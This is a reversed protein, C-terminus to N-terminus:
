TLASQLFCTRVYWRHLHNSFKLRFNDDVGEVDAWGSRIIREVIDPQAALKSTWAGDDEAVMTKFEDAM